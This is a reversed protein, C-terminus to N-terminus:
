VIKITHEKLVKDSTKSKTETIETMFSNEYYTQIFSSLNDSNDFSTMQNITKNNPQSDDSNYLMTYKTQDFQFLLATIISFASAEYRHCSSYLFAPRRNFDCGYYKSGPPAICEEKLACKVWPLMLNLHIDKNNYIIFQTTDLLHVFYFDSPKTKFYKFMSPHTLQTIPQSLPWTLIGNLKSKNLFTEIRNSIFVNPPEIWIISGFENLIDQIIIPKYAKM